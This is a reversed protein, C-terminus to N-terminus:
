KCILWCLWMNCLIDEDDCFGRHDVNEVQRSRVTNVYGVRRKPIAFPACAMLLWFHLTNWTSSDNIPPIQILRARWTCNYVLFSSILFVLSVCDKWLITCYLIYVIHWCCKILLNYGSFLLFLLMSIFLQRLQM